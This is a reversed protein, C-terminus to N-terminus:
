PNLLGTPIEPRHHIFPEEPRWDLGFGAMEGLKRCEEEAVPADWDLIGGRCEGPVRSYMPLCLTTELPHLSPFEVRARRCREFGVCSLASGLSETDFEFHPHKQLIERILRAKSYKHRNELYHLLEEPRLKCMTAVVTQNERQEGWGIRAADKESLEFDAGIRVNDISPCLKLEIIDEVTLWLDRLERLQSNSMVRLQNVRMDRGSPVYLNPRPLDGHFYYAYRMWAYLAGRLRENEHPVLSRTSLPSANFRHQPFIREWGRVVKCVGLIRATDSNEFTTEKCCVGSTSALCNKPLRGGVCLVVNKRSIRKDLWTGWPDRLDEPSMKIVQLLSDFPSFERKVIPLIISARHAAFIAAFRKSALTLSFATTLDLHKFVEVLVEVPIRDLVASADGLPYCGPFSDM